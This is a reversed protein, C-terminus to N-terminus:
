ANCCITKRVDLHWEQAETALDTSSISQDKMTIIDGKIVFSREPLSGCWMDCKSDMNDQSHDIDFRRTITDNVLSFVAFGQFNEYEYDYEGKGWSYMNLPIILIGLNETATLYRFAKPEWSVSSSSYSNEDQEIVLRNILRLNTPDEAGFLSIQLGLIQGDDKTEQGVALLKGGDIPHLYESFGSVDLEGLIEM